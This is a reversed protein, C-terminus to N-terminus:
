MFAFFAVPARAFVEVYSNFNKEFNIDMDNIMKEDLHVISIIRNMLNEELYNVEKLILNLESSQGIPLINSSVNSINIQILKYKNLDIKLENIKFNNFPGKFYSDFRNQELFDEYSTDQSIGETKSLLSVNVRKNNWRSNKINAEVIHKIDRFLEENEIVFIMDIEFERIVTSYIAKDREKEMMPCHIIAGSAYLTPTESCIFSSNDSLETNESDTINNSNNSINFKKKFNNLDNTLRGNVIGAMENVQKEYLYYNVESLMNGHYLYIANDIMFDNPINSDVITASITGPVSIENSLDLDVFLPTWGLKLAYNLLIHCFTSRGSYKSGTILVRPGIKNGILSQNRHENIIYHALIYETM